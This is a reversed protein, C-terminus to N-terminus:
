THREGAQILSFVLRFFRDGTGLDWTTAEKKLKHAAMISAADRMQGQYIAEAWDLVVDGEARNARWEALLKSAEEEREIKKLALLSLLHVSSWSTRFKMTDREVAQYYSKAEPLRGEKESALALIFNELREDPDFPKGVGLHEPWLLAKEALAKARKWQGNGLAQAALFLNAQRYLDHGEWGGEYPLITTRELVSLCREPQGNYLFAKALDMALAYNQPYKRAIESASRLAEKFEGRQLYFETQSRWARWNGKDLAIAKQLDRLFEPSTREKALLKARAQYFPSWDPMDGVGTFLARAEEKRGINWLILALYYDTKWHPRKLRAWELVPITELRFPFVFDPSARLARELYRNSESDDKEKLLYALWFDVGPYPPSMKLVEIAEDERDLSFYRLALELYTEHPLENRILSSFADRNAENRDVLWREFRGFHHLPDIAALLEVAIRAQASEGQLREALAVVERAALNYRNFDLSSRAWHEARKFNGEIVSLSALEAMAASRFELSRAARGYGDKADAFKGLKRNIAGYIFNAGPDYADIALARRAYDLATQYEARRYYLEAMRSLARLHGPEKKLCAQLKEIAQAYNRERAKEEGAIFLGEASGWDFNEPSTLPRSLRNREKDLSSWRLKAEGLEVCIEGTRGGIEVEHIWTEMPRLKLREAYLPKGGVSVRLDDDISQLPSLGLWLLEEKRVVNLAAWPSAAVIGGIGKVPFWIEKWRAVAHPSFFAHKFPTLSSESGAQNFLLGTQPETYQKNGEDTLLDKWIEGDRGLSWIWLKQGPKDEFLAWHGYGFEAEEWYGGFWEGYEGLIHYSKSGGFNNNKYFSLDRGDAGLPWSSALGNHGIFHTGPYYYRLDHGVDEAATMWHYYSDHLLTPNFWFCETELYAADRPLRINVRWFTRSPLDIAGVICSVSGDENKKILYDVPTAATPAHGLIGFNFEIGGSTWPGRLAIERFKVVKNWYIFTRGTSKEVGGWIKGGIEPAVLVKLYPNELEVMKWQQDRPSISYGHFKFYPYIPGILPVPDPDSFPYTKFPIAQDRVTAQGSCLTSLIFLALLSKTSMKIMQNIQHGYNSRM